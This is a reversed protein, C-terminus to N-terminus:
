EECMCSRADGHWCPGTVKVEDHREMQRMHNEAARDAVYSLGHLEEWGCSCRAAWTKFARYDDFVSAIHQEPM